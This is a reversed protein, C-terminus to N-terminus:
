LCGCAPHLLYSFFVVVVIKTTGAVALFGKEVLEV